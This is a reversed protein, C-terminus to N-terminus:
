PAEAQGDSPTSDPSGFARALERRLPAADASSLYASPGDRRCALFLFGDGMDSVPVTPPVATGPRIGYGIGLRRQIQGAGHRQNYIYQTSAYM